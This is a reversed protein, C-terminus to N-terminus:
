AEDAQPRERAREPVLDLHMRLNYLEEAYSPPVRVELIEMEIRDLEETLALLV